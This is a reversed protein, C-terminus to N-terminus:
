SCFFAIDTLSVKSSDIKVDFKVEDSFDYFDGWEDFHFVFQHAFVQSSDTEILLSNLSIEGETLFVSSQFDTLDIGSRDNCSISKIDFRYQDDAMKFDHIALKLDNLGIHNYDFGFTLEPKRFDNYNLDVDDLEIYDIGLDIPETTPDPEQQFYDALFQFNFVGNLKNRSINIEGRSLKIKEVRVPTDFFINSNIRVDMEELILLTQNQRDKIHINKILLRDFFIIELAGLKVEAGLESSLYSAVNQAIFTQVPYTRIAFAFFLFLILIWEASIGAIRGIIKLLKSM